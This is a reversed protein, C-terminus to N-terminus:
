VGTIRCEEQGTSRMLTLQSRWIDRIRITAMEKALYVSWSIIVLRKYQEYKGSRYEQM